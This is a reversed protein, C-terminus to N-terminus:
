SGGGGNGDGAERKDWLADYADLLREQLGPVSPAVPHRRIARLGERTTDSWDVADLLEEPWAGFGGLVRLEGLGKAAAEYMVKCCAEPFLTAVQPLLEVIAGPQLRATWLWLLLQEALGSGVQFRDALGYLAAAAALPVEVAAGYVHQLLLEVVAPDTEKLEVEAAGGEVMDTDLMSLFVPSAAALVVRHASFRRGGSVLVVGSFPGGLLQRAPFSSGPPPIRLAAGAGLPASIPLTAVVAELSVGASVARRLESWWAAKNVGWASRHSFSRCYATEFTDSTGKILDRRGGADVYLGMGLWYDGDEGGAGVPPGIMFHLLAAGTLNLDAPAAELAKVRATLEDLAVRTISLEMAAAAARRLAPADEDDEDEDEDESEGEREGESGGESGGEGAERKDWLADYADLLLEQLGPVSGAAPHRRIARLGERTADGLYIAGLLAPWRHRQKAPRPQAAMWAAAALVEVPWASFGGLVRLEDLAEAAAEYMMNCCAEPCLAAVQPLLEVIAGPQLRATWLWLLLQEALGSGVQFRDALGYLAAAAALPVEVAAGYVHQLLLEVVAPDTEKLEVEAAGGEVMDTDLMSLFVPSAAALVVRHASFRRGCSVLVVDSFPGGLLQRAPFSGSASPVRLAAGAGLPESSPLMTFVAELSGGASVARRLESWYVVQDTGWSARKSFAECYATEFTDSHGGLLSRRGSGDISCLQASYCAARPVKALGDDDWRLYMGVWFDGDEGGAGVPTGIVFQLLAAGQTLPLPAKVDLEAPAAEHAKVCATLEDLAVRTMSLEM